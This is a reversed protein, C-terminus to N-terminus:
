REIEKEEARMVVENSAARSLRRQCSPCPCTYGVMWTDTGCPNGTHSCRETPPGDGQAMRATEAVEKPPDSRSM